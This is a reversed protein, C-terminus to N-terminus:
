PQPISRYGAAERYFYESVVRGNRRLVGAKLEGLSTAYPRLRADALETPNLAVLLLTRGDQEAGPFWREYMLGSLGFLNQSATDQAARAPDRAYFALESSLMYRNLGVVLPDPGDASRLRTAIADVQTGLDRWAVPLVLMQRSYPLGAPGLTLYHLTAGYILLMVVATAGWARGLWQPMRVAGPSAIAHALAPVIAVWVAGTWDLKIPHRLSFLVFVSLPVLTYARLFNLRRIDPGAPVAPQSAGGGRMLFPLAAFGVPTLLALASAILNHLSFRPAEALRQSTQFAFSAWDHRANWVIVPSFIVLALVAAAYPLARLLWVRSQRDIVFFVLTAPVLLAITYKSILGFGLAIGAGWWARAHGGLLARQLFYLAAAWATIMPTDPTIFLGALFYAPLVQMLVLAVLASPRGYMEQATRYVFFSAAAASLLGGIRVGFEYNGFLATGARILWAVMPPHDLYGFDMHQSYNWYYAEEPFLEVSAMYAVRLLLSFVGLAIVIARWQAGVGTVSQSVPACLNEGRRIVLTSVFVAALIAAPAPVNLRGM